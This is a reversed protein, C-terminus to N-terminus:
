SIILSTKLLINQHFFKRWKVFNEIICQLLQPFSSDYASLPTKKPSLLVNFKIYPLKQDM